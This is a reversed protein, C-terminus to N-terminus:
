VKEEDDDLAAKITDVKSALRLLTCGGGVVIGDEVAAQRIFYYVDQDTYVESHLHTHM